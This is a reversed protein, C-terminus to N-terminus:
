FRVKVEEFGIDKATKLAYNVSKFLQPSAKDRQSYLFVDPKKYRRFQMNFGGSLPAPVIVCALLDGAGFLLKIEKLQM